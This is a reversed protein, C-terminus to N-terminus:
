TLVPRFISLILKVTLSNLEPTSVIKPFSLNKHPGFILCPVVPTPKLLPRFVCAVGGCSVFPKDKLKNGLEDPRYTSCDLQRLAQAFQGKDRSPLSFDM